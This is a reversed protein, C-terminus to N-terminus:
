SHLSVSGPKKPYPDLKSRFMQAVIEGCDVIGDTCFCSEDEIIEDTVEYDMMIGQLQKMGMDDISQGGRIRKTKKNAGKKKRTGSGLKSAAELAAAEGASLENGVNASGRNSSMAKLVTYFEFELDVDFDENTRVCTQSVKAIVTGRAEICEIDDGGDNGAGLAPQVVLDASLATVNTLRFRTALAHCEPQTASISLDMTRIGRRNSSSSSGGGFWKSVSITRSFENQSTSDNKPGTDSSSESVFIKWSRNSHSTTIIKPLSLISRQLQSQPTAVFANAFAIASFSAFVFRLFVFRLVLLLTNM